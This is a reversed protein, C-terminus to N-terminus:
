RIQLTISALSATSPVHPAFNLRHTWISAAQATWVVMEIGILIPPLTAHPDAFRRTSTWSWDAVVDQVNFLKLIRTILADQAGLLAIRANAVTQSWIPALQAARALTLAGTTTSLRLVSSSADKSILTWSQALSVYIAIQPLHYLTLSALHAILRVLKALLQLLSWTHVLQATRAAMFAGTSSVLTSASHDASNGTWWLGQTAAQANSAEEPFWIALCAIALANIALRSLLTWGHAQPACPASRSIGITNLTQHANLNANIWM